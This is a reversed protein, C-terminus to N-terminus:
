EGEKEVGQLNQLLYIKTASGLLKALSKCVTMPLVESFLFSGSYMIGSPRVEVVKFGAKSFTKRWWAESFFWTETLLNGREGHKKQWLMSVASGPNLASRGVPSSDHRKAGSQFAVQLFRKALWPYYTFTTLCRWAPTPLVHIALGGPVLVRAMEQLLADVAVVHELVNSSFVVDMSATSVPLTKGDYDKVPYVRQRAYASEPIDIATVQYGLAELQAEQQGTGAGIELLSAGSNAPPMFKLIQEFEHERIVRLWELSM